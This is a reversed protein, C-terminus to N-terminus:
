RNAAELIIQEREKKNLRFLALVSARIIVPRTYLPNETLIEEIQNIADNDFRTSTIIEKKARKRDPRKENTYGEQYILFGTRRFASASRLSTLM